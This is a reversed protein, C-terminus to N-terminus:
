REGEPAAARAPLGRELTLELAREIPLRVIGRTADVWGYSSQLEAEHARWADLEASPAAQLPATSPPQRLGAMPHAPADERLDRRSLAGELGSMLLLVLAILAALGVSGALLVRSQADRTEYGRAPDPEIQGSM